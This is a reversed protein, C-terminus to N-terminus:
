THDGGDLRVGIARCQPAGEKQRPAVSSADRLLEWAPCGIAAAIRELSAVTMNAQLVRYLTGPSWRARREVENLTLGAANCRAKVAERIVAM